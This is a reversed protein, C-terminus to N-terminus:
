LAMDEPLDGWNTFWPRSRHSAARSAKRRGLSPALLRATDFGRGGMHKPQSQDRRGINLGRVGKMGMKGVTKAELMPIYDLGTTAAYENAVQVLEEKQRWGCKRLNGNYFGLWAGYAQQASLELDPKNKVSALASSVSSASKNFDLDQERVHQLNMDPLAQSMTRQEFPAVLLLGGGNKGARATRGLRHIYQERETLGVQVVFTVDPYDMGRASVDSTFMVVNNRKRFQESTKTRASQSKRSHIELVEGFDGMATFLQAMFGTVRATTFFVIVKFNAEDRTVRHLVAALGAVQKELPLVVLEQKVHLHTQEEEGVTDVYQFGPRLANAAIAQVTKPVTASFLLTQRAEKPPVYKLIKDIEPKFGMELLQDAEDFILIKMARFAEAIGPTNELHDILRGPTAVLLDVPAGAALRKQDTKINTGGIVCIINIPDFKTLKRAETEIQAALERTPSLVLTLIDRPRASAKQKEIIELAPVLFALTKGTGTKAKALTDVGSLCVPLTQAQVETMYEFRMEALARRRNASIGAVDTFKSDSSNKGKALPAPPPQNSMAMPAAPARQQSPPGGGGGGNSKNNNNRPRKRGRGGRGGGNGNSTGGGRGGGGSNGRNGGREAGNQAFSSM